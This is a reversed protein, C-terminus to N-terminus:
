IMESLNKPVDIKVQSLSEYHLLWSFNHKLILEFCISNNKAFYDNITLINDNNSTDKTNNTSDSSNRLAYYRYASFYESLSSIYGFLSELLKNLINSIEHEFIQTGIILNLLKIWRRDKM